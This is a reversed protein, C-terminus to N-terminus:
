VVDLFDALLLNRFVFFNRLIFLLLGGESLLYWGLVFGRLPVRLSSMIFTEAAKESSLLLFILKRQQDSM